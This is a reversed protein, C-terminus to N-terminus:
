MERIIVSYFLLGLNYSHLCILLSIFDIKARNFMFSVFNKM